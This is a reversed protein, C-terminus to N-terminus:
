PRHFVIRALTALALYVMFAAVMFAAVGVLYVAISDWYRVIAIYLMISIHTLGHLSDTRPQGAGLLPPQERLDGPLYRIAPLLAAKGLGIEGLEYAGRLRRDSAELAAPPRRPDVRKKADCVGEVGVQSDLQEIALGALSPGIRPEAAKNTPARTRRNAAAQPPPPPSVSKDLSSNSLWAFAIQALYSFCSFATPAGDLTSSIGSKTSCASAIRFLSIASIAASLGGVSMCVSKSAM